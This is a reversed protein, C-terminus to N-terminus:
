IESIGGAKKGRMTATRQHGYKHFNELNSTDAGNDATFIVMTNEAIKMDHLSKMINGIYRDLLGIQETPKGLISYPLFNVVEEDTLNHSFPNHPARFALYM